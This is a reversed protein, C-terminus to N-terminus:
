PRMMPPSTVTSTSMRESPTVSPIPGSAGDAAAAPLGAQKALSFVSDGVTKFIRGNTTVGHIAPRAGTVMSARAPLSLSPQVTTLIGSSGRGALTKLFDMRPVVDARIGDLVILVVRQSLAEGGPLRAHLPPPPQYHEISKWGALALLGGGVAATLVLGLPLTIDRRNGM